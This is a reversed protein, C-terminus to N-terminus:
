RARSRRSRGCALLLIRVSRRQESGTKTAKTPFIKSVIARVPEPEAEQHDSILTWEEALKDVNRAFIELNSAFAIVARDKVDALKAQTGYQSRHTNDSIVVVSKM